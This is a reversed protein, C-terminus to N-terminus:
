TSSHSEAATRVHTNNVVRSLKLDGWRIVTIPEVARAARSPRTVCKTTDYVLLIGSAGRYYARTVARFREQGAATALPRSSCGHTPPSCARPTAAAGAPGLAARTRYRAGTDWLQLKCECDDVQVVRTGFEM